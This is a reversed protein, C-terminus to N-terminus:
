TRTEQNHPVHSVLSFICCTHKSQPSPYMGIGRDRRSQIARVIVNLSVLLQIINNSSLYGRLRERPVDGHAPQNLEDNQPLPGTNKDRIVV